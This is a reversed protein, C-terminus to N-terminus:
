DVGTVSRLAFLDRVADIRDPRCDPDKLAMIPEHLLKKVIANTLADIRQREDASFGPQRGLTKTLEAVRIEEARERLAAITPALARHQLWVMFRNVEADVVADVATESSAGKNIVPQIDDIDCLLVGPVTRVEPEIDRPVALDIMLLPRNARCRMVQRVIGAEICFSRSNTSSVVIDANALEAALDHISVASAELSSALSRARSITRGAIVIQGVGSRSMNWATLKATEGSSVILVHRSSLDGFTKRAVEVAASSVSASSGGVGSGLRIRRGASIASQFLRELLQDSTGARRATHLANRVQGLIQAEGLVMSELGSAVRFLHRVADAGQLSYFHSPDASIPVDSARRMLQVLDVASRAHNDGHFYIETRNCTSLVTNPGFQANLVPYAQLLEESTFALRERVEIPATKHSIGTLTIVIL